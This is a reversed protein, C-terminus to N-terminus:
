QAWTYSLCKWDPVGVPAHGPYAHTMFELHNGFPDLFYLSAQEPPGLRRPGDVPVGAAALVTKVKDLNAGDVELALHPHAQELAAQGHDQLFLDVRPGSGFRVSLHLPSNRTNELDVAREPRLKLFVQADFRELLEAGLLGVYFREALSLDRIPFTLHDITRSIGYLLSHAAQPESM